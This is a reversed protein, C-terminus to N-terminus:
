LSLLKEKLIQVGEGAGKQIIEIDPEVIVEGPDILFKRAYSPAYDILGCQKFFYYFYFFDTSLGM